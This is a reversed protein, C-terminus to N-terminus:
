AVLGLVLGLGRGLILRLHPRQIPADLRPDPQLLPPTLHLLAVRPPQDLAPLLQLPTILLPQSDSTTSLQIEPARLAVRPPHLHHLALGVEVTRAVEQPHKPVLDVEWGLTQAAERHEM